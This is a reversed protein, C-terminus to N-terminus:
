YQEAALLEDDHQQTDRYDDFEKDFIDEYATSSFTRPELPACIVDNLNLRLYEDYRKIEEPASYNVVVTYRSQYLEQQAHYIMPIENWSVGGVLYLKDYDSFNIEEGLSGFDHIEVNYENSGLQQLGSYFDIDNISYVGSEQEIGDYMDALMEFQVGGNQARNIVAASANRTNFYDALHIAFSTTGIRQQAGVVAIRMNAMSYMPKAKEKEALAAAAQAEAFADFHKDYRRWKQKSLGADSLCEKLDAKMMEMNTREDVGDYNAVINTFGKHILKDLFDDGAYYGSAYIIIKADDKQYTIAEMYSVFDDGKEECQSVDFIFPNYFMCSKLDSKIFTSLSMKEFIMKHLSINMEGAIKDLIGANEKRACLMPNIMM